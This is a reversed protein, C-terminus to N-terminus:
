FLITSGDETTLSYKNDMPLELDELPQLESDPLDDNEAASAVLSSCSLVLFLASIFLLIKFIKNSALSEM